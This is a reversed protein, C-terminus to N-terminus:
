VAQDVRVAWGSELGGIMVQPDHDAARKVAVEHDRPDRSHTSAMMVTSDVTTNRAM